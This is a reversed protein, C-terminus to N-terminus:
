EGLVVPLVNRVPPFGETTLRPEYVELRGVQRAGVDGYQVSFSFAGPERSGGQAFGNALESGARNRLRWNVTGEFTNSCGSVQFGSKVHEGSVPSEVFVFASGAHAAACVDRRADSGCGPLALAALM